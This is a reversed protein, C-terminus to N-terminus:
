AKHLMVILRTIWEIKERDPLGRIRSEQAAAVARPRRRRQILIPRPPGFLRSAAEAAARWDIWVERVDLLRNELRVAAHYRAERMGHFQFADAGIASLRHRHDIM